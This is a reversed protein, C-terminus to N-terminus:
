SGVLVSLLNSVYHSIFTPNNIPNLCTRTKTWGDVVQDYQTELPHHHV